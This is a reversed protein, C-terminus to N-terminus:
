AAKLGNWVAIHAAASEGTASFSGGAYLNGGPDVLLAEVQGNVGAGLASWPGSASVPRAPLGISVESAILLALSLLHIMRRM